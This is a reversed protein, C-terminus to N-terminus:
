ARDPRGAPGAGAGLRQHGLRLGRGPQVGAGPVPLHPRPAGHHGGGPHGSRHRSQRGPLRVLRLGRRRRRTRGRLRGRQHRQRHVVSGGATRAALDGDDGDPRGAPGAGVVLASTAWASAGGLNLALVRYQYTHGPLVTTDAALTVVGTGPNAAPLTFLAFAGGDVAREVVFGDENTANDTFSLAVQLGPQLTATMGTPDAPVAPVVVSAINSWPSTGVANTAAVRYDYSHGAAVTTDFAVVPGTGPNAPANPLPTFGGGDVAREIVFADENTANDTWELRVQPGAQLTATLGTPAPPITPTVTNSFSEVTRQMYQGGYGVVNQAAIRYLYSTGEVYTSDVYTLTSGTTNPQDLPRVVTSLTIWPDTGTRRQVLFQTESLSNDTWSLTAETPALATLSLTPAIPPLAVSVPRMMDMEEHSLIHCHYVYEWGFNVLTNVIPSTPLGNADVNNFGMQSGLPVVPNLPRISNPLDFPLTPIIPRVAM